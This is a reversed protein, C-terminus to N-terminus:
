SVNSSSFTCYNPTMMLYYPDIVVPMEILGVIEIITVKKELGFAM